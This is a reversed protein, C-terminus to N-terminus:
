NTIHTRFFFSILHFQVCMVAGSPKVPCSFPIPRGKEDHAQNIEFVTLISAASLFLNSLGIHSGPCVRHCDIILISLRIIKRLVIIFYFNTFFILVVFRRGFGFIVDVPNRPGNELDGNNLYREPKFTEPDPYENEDNFM